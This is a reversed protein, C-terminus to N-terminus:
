VGGNPQARELWTQLGLFLSVLTASQAVMFRTTCCSVPLLVVHPALDTSCSWWPSNTSFEVGVQESLFHMLAGALPRICGVANEVRSNGYSYPAPNNKRIPLGMSLRANIWESCSCYVPNTTVCSLWKVM